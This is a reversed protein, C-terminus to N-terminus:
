AAGEAGPTAPNRMAVWADLAAICDRWADETQEHLNDAASQLVPVMSPEAEDLLREGIREMHLAAMLRTTAGFLRSGAILPDSM